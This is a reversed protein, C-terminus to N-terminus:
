MMELYNGMNYYNYLIFIVTFFVQNADCYSFIFKWESDFILRVQFGAIKTLEDETSSRQM